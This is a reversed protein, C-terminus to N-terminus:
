KTHVRPIIHKLDGIGLARNTKEVVRASDLELNLLAYAVDINEPVVIAEQHISQVLTLIGSRTSVTSTYVVNEYIDYRPRGADRALEVLQATSGLGYLEPDVLLARGHKELAKLVDEARLERTLHAEIVQTHMLTTPVALAVTTIDLDAVVTRADEAHHSPISPPDLIMSNIPGKSDEKPDAGRRVIVAFVSRLNEVGISCLVRLLGTTNCSVVRVYRAGTAKEYNCLTSYSVDAVSPKEGGQFVAPKKYKLYLEKNRAGRGAPSADYVLDAESILYEVDGEPEVGIKRFEEFKERPAFIRIGRRAALAASYDPTYKAVGLLEFDRVRLLADAIRKGITGYGNVAVRAPLAVM